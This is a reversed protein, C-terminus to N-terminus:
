RGRKKRGGTAAVPPEPAPAAPEQPVAVLPGRRITYESKSCHPGFHESIVFGTDTLELEEEKPWDLLRKGGEHGGRQEAFIYNVGTDTAGVVLLERGAYSSRAPAQNFWSGTLAIVTGVPLRDKLETLKSMRQGETPPQVAEAHHWGYVNNIVTFVCGPPAVDDLMQLMDATYTEALEQPCDQDRLTPRHEFFEAWAPHYLSCAISLVERLTHPDTGRYLWEGPSPARM